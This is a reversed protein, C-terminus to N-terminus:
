AASMWDFYDGTMWAFPAGAMDESTFPLMIQSDDSWFYATVTGSTRTFTARVPGNGEIAFEGPNSAFATVFGNMDRILAATGDPRMRELAISGAWTGPFTCKLKGRGLLLMWATSESAEMTFSADVQAM